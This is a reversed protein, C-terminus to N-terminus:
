EKVLKVAKFNENMQITVFYIGSPYNKGFSFGVPNNKFEDVLKGSSEYVKITLGNLIKSSIFNFEESSPNPNISITEEWENEDVATGGSCIINASLFNQAFSPLSLAGNYGNFGPDLDIANDVYNCAFGPSDPAGIQGVYSSTFSRSVYIKKDPGIQMGYLDPTVSLPVKSALITAQVGSSINFQALTVNVDYCTTYLYDSNPSFEVGYVNDGHLLSIPNSVIGTNLDFDFIEVIKQYGMAVAIKEGCMNFKMQGYTNQFTSTNHVSGVASVVPSQLGSSTLLYAYFENSGWKHTLIWYQNNGRDKIACIKEAVSDTLSVNKIGTIDGKGSNMVMDVVSYTFGNPGGDAAATFIFYQMPSAPNPVIIASQTTSVDGMLGSGNPMITHSSDYVDVGNTYFLLEGSASSISATGETTTMPGNGAVPSAGTFDLYAYTGFYWHNAENQANLNSSIVALLALLYIRKM